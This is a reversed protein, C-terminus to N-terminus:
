GRNEMEKAASCMSWVFLMGVIWAAVIALYIVEKGM